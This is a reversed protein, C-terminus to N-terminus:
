ELRQEAAINYAIFSERIFLNILLFFFVSPNIQLLGDRRKDLQQSQCHMLEWVPFIINTGSHYTTAKM